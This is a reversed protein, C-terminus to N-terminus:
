LSRVFQVVAHQQAATLANFANRATAGQGAHARIAAAVNTTSGDHLLGNRFRIGWLPATRMRTLTAASQGEVGIGDGLTGMNHLLFDSYPFFRMNGPVGNAPAPPTTFGATRHCAACGIQTFLPQGRMIAAADTNDTPAPALFTLFRTFQQVSPSLATVNGACSGAAEDTRAPVDPNSGDNATNLDDCSTPSQDVGNPRPEAAYTKVSQGAICHQTTIGMDNLYADAAVQALNPGDAKWGFRGVRTGGVTQAPDAPNPLRTTVISAIGRTAAPESAALNTFTSDPLSDVLGLGFLAQTLRGVNHVTATAPETEVPVNCQAGLTNTFVGITFLQRLSGGQASLDHFVNNTVAGFRRDIQVGAGGVAGLSHCNGCAREDFIPGLGDALGKTATFASRATQFDAATIGGLPDGVLAGVVVGVDVDGGDREGGCGAAAAISWAAVWFLDRARM